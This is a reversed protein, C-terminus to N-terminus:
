GAAARRVWGVLLLLGGACGAVLPPVGAVAVLQRPWKITCPTGNASTVTLSWPEKTVRDGVRLCSEANPDVRLARRPLRVQITDDRGLQHEEFVRVDIVREADIRYPIVTRNFTVVIGIVWVVVAILLLAVLVRRSTASM